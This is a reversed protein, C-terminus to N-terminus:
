VMCAITDLQDVKTQQPLRINVTLSRAMRDATSESRLGHTGITSTAAKKKEKAIKKPPADPSYHRTGIKLDLVAPRTM